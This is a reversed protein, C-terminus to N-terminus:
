WADNDTLLNTPATWAEDDTAASLYLALGASPDVITPGGVWRVFDSWWKTASNPIVTDTYVILNDTGPGSPVRWRMPKYPTGLAHYLVYGTPIWNSKVHPVGCLMLGETFGVAQLRQIIPSVELDTITKFGAFQELVAATESNFWGVIGANHGHHELHLKCESVTEPYLVGVNARTMYHSHTADFTLGEYPFPTLDADFWGYSALGQQLIARIVLAKDRQLPVAVNARLTEESVGMEFARTKVSTQLLYRDPDSLTYQVTPLHQSEGVGGGATSEQPDKKFDMGNGVVEVTADTTVTCFISLLEPFQQRYLGVDVVTENLLPEIPVLDSTLPGLHSLLETVNAPLAM